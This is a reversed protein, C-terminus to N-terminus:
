QGHFCQLLVELITRFASRKDCSGAGAGNLQCSLHELGLKAAFYAVILPSDQHNQAMLSLLYQVFQELQEMRTSSCNWAIQQLYPHRALLYIVWDDKNFAQWGRSLTFYHIAHQAALDADAPWSISQITM